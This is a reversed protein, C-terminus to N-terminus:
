RHGSGGGRSSPAARPGPASRSSAGRASDHRVQAGGGFSEFARPGSRNGPAAASAAPRPSTAAPAAFGRFDRRASEPQSQYRGALSGNRYPVGRRHAPDHEWPGSRIFGAGGVVDLQHHGWRWHNWGWLPGIIPFGVGFGIVLGGIFYPPVALVFPPYDPWPWGGYVLMPDYYPVYVMDPEAPEIAISQDENSVAQQPTAHLSGAAAARQRLRQVSDMVDGQQALFADGIQETWELNHDMMQLVSPFPVVSKVSLDWSQQQLAAALADGRLAANDSDQLWRQAEVIELPYTAATLIQGLLPDPYLAIPATLQDLQEDSLATSAATPAMQGAPLPQAIAALPLLGIWGIIGLALLPRNM